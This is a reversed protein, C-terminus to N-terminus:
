WEDKIIVPPEMGKKMNKVVVKVYDDIQTFYDDCTLCYENDGETIWRELPFRSTKLVIFDTFAYRFKGDKFDLKLTYHIITKSPIPSGGKDYDMLKIRAKGIIKGGERDRVKTVDTPNEYFDNIWGIARLYLTDAAGEKEVVEQYTVLKTIEDIPVINSKQAQVNLLTFVFSLIFLTIKKM